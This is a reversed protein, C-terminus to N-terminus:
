ADAGDDGCDEATERSEGAATEPMEEPAHRVPRSSTKSSAHAPPDSFPAPTGSEGTCPEEPALSKLAHGDGRFCSPQRRPAPSDIDEPTNLRPRVAGATESSEFAVRSPRAPGPVRRLASLPSRHEPGRRACWTPACPLDRYGGPGTAARLPDRSRQRGGGHRGGVAGGAEREVAAGDGQRVGEGADQGVEHLPRRRGAPGGVRGGAPQDGPVQGAGDRRPRGPGGGPWGGCGWGGRGCWRARRGPGPGAVRSGAGRSPRWGTVAACQRRRAAVSQVSM